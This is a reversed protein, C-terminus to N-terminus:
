HNKLQHNQVDEEERREKVRESKAGMINVKRECVFLVCPSQLTPWKGLTACPFRISSSLNERGDELRWVFFQQHYTCKTWFSRYLVQQLEIHLYWAVIRWHTVLQTKLFIWNTFFFDSFFNHVLFFVWNLLFIRLKQLM